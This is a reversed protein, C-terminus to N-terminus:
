QASFYHHIECIGRVYIVLKAIYDLPVPRRSRAGRGDLHPFTVSPGLDSHVVIRRVGCSELSLFIVRNEFFWNRAFVEM